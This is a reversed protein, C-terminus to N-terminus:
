PLLETYTVFSLQHIANLLQAEAAYRALETDRYERLAEIYDLLSTAGNRYSFEVRDRVQKARNLYDQNYLRSLQVATDYGALAQNVDSLVQIRSATETARSADLERRTRLKEGQNRDFIRLPIGVTVGAFNDPGNRKYEAGATVDTAGNAEALKIDAQAKQVGQLAAQYDPRSALANQTLEDRNLQLEPASLDGTIDFDGSFHDIGLLAQLQARAQATAQTANLADNEFRSAQIEIRDLDTRSIDGASFRMRSLEVTRAYDRRNEQALALNSKALLLAVFSQKVSLLFQREFDDYGYKAVATALRASEIRYRRKHGREFTQSVNFTEDLPAIPPTGLDEKAISLEPNPRLAATVENAQMAQLLARQAALNPSHARAFDLTERLTLPHDTQVQAYAACALLGAAVRLCFKSM